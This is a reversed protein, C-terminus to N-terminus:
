FSFSLGMQCIFFFNGEPIKQNKFFQSCQTRIGIDNLGYNKDLSYVALRDFIKFSLNLGFSLYRKIKLSSLQLQFNSQHGWGYEVFPIFNEFYPIKWKIGLHYIFPQKMSYLEPKKFLLAGVGLGFHFINRFKEPLLLDTEPIYLSYDLFYRTITFKKGGKISFSGGLSFEHHEPSSIPRYQIEGFVNSSFFLLIVLLKKM